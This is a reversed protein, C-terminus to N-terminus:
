PLTYGHKKFVTRAEASFLFDFFKQAAEMNHKQAYKLIVAGQAIPEYAKQDVEVWKGQGKM